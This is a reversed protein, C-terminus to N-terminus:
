AEFDTVSSIEDPSVMIPEGRVVGRNITCVYYVSDSELIALVMDDTVPDPKGVENHFAKDNHFYDIAFIRRPFIIVNGSNSKKITEYFREAHEDDKTGPVFFKM